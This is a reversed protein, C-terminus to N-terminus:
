ERSHKRLQHYVYLSNPRSDANRLKLADRFAAGIQEKITVKDIDECVLIVLQRRVWFTAQKGLRSIEKYITTIGREKSLEFM